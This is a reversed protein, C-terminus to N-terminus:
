EAVVIEDLLVAQADDPVAARFTYDGMRVVYRGLASSPPLWVEFRGDSDPTVEIPRGSYIIGNYVAGAYGPTVTFSERCPSGDGYLRIGWVRVGRHVRLGENTQKPM